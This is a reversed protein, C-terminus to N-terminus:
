LFYIVCHVSLSTLTIFMFMVWGSEETNLESCEVRAIYLEIRIDSVARLWNLGFLKV